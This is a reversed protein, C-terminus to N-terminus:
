DEKNRFLAETHFVSAVYDLHAQYARAEFDAAVARYHAWLTLALTAPALAILGWATPWIFAVLVSMLAVCAAALAKTHARQADDTLRRQRRAHHQEPPSITM